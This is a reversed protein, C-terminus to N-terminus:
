RHRHVYTVTSRAKAETESRQTATVQGGWHARVTAGAATDSNERESARWTEWAHPAAMVCGGCSPVFRNGTRSWTCSRFCSCCRSRAQLRSPVARVHMALRRGWVHRSSPCLRSAGGRWRRRLLGLGTGVRLSGGPVATSGTAATYHVDVAGSGFGTCFCSYHGPPDTPPRRGCCGGKNRWGRPLM